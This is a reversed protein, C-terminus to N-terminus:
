MSRSASSENSNPRARRSSPMSAKRASRPAGSRRPASSVGPPRQAPVEAVSADDLPWTGAAKARDIAAQGAETMLGEAIMREARARNVHSWNSRPRRPTFRLRSSGADHRAAHSDIWGFCLAQEIAEAYRVSSTASDKHQIVLWIERETSSHEALWARWDQATPAHFTRV